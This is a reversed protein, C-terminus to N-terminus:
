NTILIGARFHINPCHHTPRISLIYSNFIYSNFFYIIYESLNQIVYNNNHWKSFNIDNPCHHTPPMEIMYTQYTGSIYRIYMHNHLVPICIQPLPASNSFLPFRPVRNRTWKRGFNPFYVLIRFISSFESLLWWIPFTTRFNPFAPPHSRFFFPGWKNQTSFNPFNLM